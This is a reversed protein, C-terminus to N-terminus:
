KLFKISHVIENYAPLQNTMDWDAAPSNHHYKQRFTIYMEANIHGILYGATTYSEADSKFSTGIPKANYGNILVDLPHDVTGSQDQAAQIQQQLRGSTDAQVVVGNNDPAKPPVFKVTESISTYDHAAGDSASPMLVVKWSAPYRLSYVKATDVYEKTGRATTSTSGSAGSNANSITLLKDASKKAHVVYWGTFGVVLVVFAVLMIRMLKTSVLSQQKMSKAM